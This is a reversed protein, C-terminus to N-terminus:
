QSWRGARPRTLPLRSCLIFDRWRSRKSRRRQGSAITITAAITATGNTSCLWRAFASMAGGGGTLACGPDGAPAAGVGLVRCWGTAGVLLVRSGKWAAATCLCVCVVVEEVPDPAVVLDDGEEVLVPPREPPPTPEELADPAATDVDAVVDVGVGGTAVVGM